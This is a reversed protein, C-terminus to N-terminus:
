GSSRTPATSNRGAAQRVHDDAVHQHDVAPPGDSTRSASLRTSFSNQGGSGLGSRLEVMARGSGVVKNKQKLSFKVRDQTPGSAGPFDPGAPRM